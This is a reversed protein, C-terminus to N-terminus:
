CIEVNVLFAHFKYNTETWVKKKALLKVKMLLCFKQPVCKEVSKPFRIREIVLLTRILNGMDTSGAQSIRM